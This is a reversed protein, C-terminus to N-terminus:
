KQEGPNRLSRSAAKEICAFCLTLDDDAYRHSFQVAEDVDDGCHDCQLSTWSRNGIIEDYQSRTVTAPDLALMRAYFDYGNGGLVSGWRGGHCYQAKWRDPVSAIVDRRTVLMMLPASM